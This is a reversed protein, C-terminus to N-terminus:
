PLEAKLWAMNVQPRISIKPVTCYKDLGGGPAFESVQEFFISTGYQDPIYFILTGHSAHM